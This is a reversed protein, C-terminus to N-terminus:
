EVAELFGEFYEESRGLQVDSYEEIVSEVVDFTTDGFEERLDADIGTQHLEGRYVDAFRNFNVRDREILARTEQEALVFRLHLISHFNEKVSLMGTKLDYWKKMLFDREWGYQFPSDSDAAFEALGWFICIRYVDSNPIGASRKVDQVTKMAEKSIEFTPEWEFVDEGWRALIDAQPPDVNFGDVSDLQDVLRRLTNGGQVLELLHEAHAEVTQEIFHRRSRLKPVEEVVRQICEDTKREINVSTEPPMM